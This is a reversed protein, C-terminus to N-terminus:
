EKSAKKERAKKYKEKSKCNMDICSLVRRRGLPVSVMPLGCLNCSKDTPYVNKKQPLPFSTKCGPYSSCGIFQKKTKKSRIIRLEGECNPCKGIVNKERDKEIYGRALGEGISEEKGKFEELTSTLEKKAEKLTEVKTAKGERIEEIKEEFHRTLKEDIIEPISKELAEIVRMGLPTVKISVGKIYDRRYLTEVVDARTAKTGMGRTELEKVLSAPNYRRPPSTKKKESYIELIKLRDGRKLRPLKIEELKLYPYFQGWGEELTRGASFRFGEGRVEVKVEVKERLVADGFVALFRYAILDYLRQERQNLKKPVTGTPYIAPHAPDEKKGQRPYLREKQLLKKTAESFKESKGLAMLIRKYGISPPLKQSSTRPYSIYGSEYLNQAIEQTQKPALRFLKYAEAQLAGLDFPVPPPIKKEEREVEKVGAEEAGEVKELIARAKELDFIRGLTHQAKIKRRSVKLDAFIEMYDQPEFSEIERERKVLIGLAPTQVRGASFIVRYSLNKKAASSLARSVNIGWYWDLIHRCEGAEVLKYDVEAPETYAKKLEMPTLTSFHMRKVRSKEVEGDGLVAYKLANYGLLEGEIDYDTAIVFLDADKGLKELVKIYQRTYGKGKEIEYLPAWEVGFVPYGSSSEVQKLSYLHGAASVVVVSDGNQEVEYYSTKGERRRRYKKSLSYAIKQSVKPKESVVLVKM